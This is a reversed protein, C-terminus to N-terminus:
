RITHFKREARGGEAAATGAAGPSPPPSEAMSCSCDCGGGGAGSMLVCRTQTNRTDSPQDQCQQKGEKRQEPGANPQKATAQIVNCQSVARHQMGAESSLEEKVKCQRTSREQWHGQVSRQHEKDQNSKIASAVNLPTGGAGPTKSAGGMPVFKHNAQVVSRSTM